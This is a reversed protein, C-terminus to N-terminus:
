IVEEEDILFYKFYIEKKDNDWFASAYYGERKEPQPIENVLIGEQLLEEETKGLGNKKDFPQYHILTIKNQEHKIFKKM